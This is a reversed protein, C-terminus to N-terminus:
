GAVDGFRLHQSDSTIILLLLQGGGEEWALCDVERDPIQADQEGSM